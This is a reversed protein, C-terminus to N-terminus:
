RALASFHFWFEAFESETLGYIITESKGCGGAHAAPSVHRYTPDSVIRKKLGEGQEPFINPYCDVIKRVEVSLDDLHRIKDSSGHYPAKETVHTM